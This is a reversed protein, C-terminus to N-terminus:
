PLGRPPRALYGDPREVLVGAARLDDVLRYATRLSVAYRRAIESVTAPRKRGSLWGALNVSRVARTAM